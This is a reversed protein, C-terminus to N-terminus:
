NGGKLTWLFHRPVGSLAIWITMMETEPNQTVPNELHKRSKKLWCNTKQPLTRQTM